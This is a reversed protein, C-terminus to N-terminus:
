QIQESEATPPVPNDFGTNTLTSTSMQPNAPNIIVADLDLSAPAASTVPTANPM